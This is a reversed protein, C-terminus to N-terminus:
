PRGLSADATGEVRPSASCPSTGFFDIYAAGPVQEERLKDAIQQVSLGASCFGYVARKMHTNRAIRDARAQGTVAKYQQLHGFAGLLHRLKIGFDQVAEWETL